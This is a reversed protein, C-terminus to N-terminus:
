YLAFPRYHVFHVRAISLISLPGWHIYISSLPRASSLFGSYNEYLLFNNSLTM